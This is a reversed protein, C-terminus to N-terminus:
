YPLSPCFDAASLLRCRVFFKKKLLNIKKLFYSCVINGMGFLSNLSMSTDFQQHLSRHKIKYYLIPSLNSLYKLLTFVFTKVQTSYLSFRFKYLNNLTCRLMLYLVYYTTISQRVFVVVIDRWVTITHKEVRILSFFFISQLTYINTTWSNLLQLPRSVPNRLKQSFV